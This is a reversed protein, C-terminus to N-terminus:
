TSRRRIMFKRTIRGAVEVCRLDFGAVYEAFPASAEHAALRRHVEDAPLDQALLELLVAQFRALELDETV